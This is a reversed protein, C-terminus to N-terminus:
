DAVNIRTIVMSEPGPSPGLGGYLNTHLRSDVGLLDVAVPAHIGLWHWGVKHRYYRDIADTTNFHLRARRAAGRRAWLPASKGRGPVKFNLAVLIYQL